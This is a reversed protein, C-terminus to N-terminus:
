KQMSPRRKETDKCEQEIDVVLTELTALDADLEHPQPIQVTESQPNDHSNTNAKTMGVHFREALADTLHIYRLKLTEIRDAGRTLIDKFICEEVAREYTDRLRGYFGKTEYEYKTPSTAHLAKIAPAEAKLLSIRKKVPLGKWIVGAPDVKGADAGKLAFLADTKPTQGLRETERCLDNFFILDHTFVVVQRQAAETALRIAVKGCRERDLSSVPDDVVIPGKGETMTIETLFASLALARQEGESLIDSVKKTHGTGSQTAFSADTQSSKRAISIKLHDIELLAREREFQEIVATTLHTDVFRNAASTIQTTAVDKLASDYKQLEKLVDRRAKVQDINTTLLQRDKLEAQELKLATRAEQENADARAKADADLTAALASLDASLDALVPLGDSPKQYSLLAAAHQRRAVVATKFESLRSALETNRAALQKIRSDWDEAALVSLGPLTDRAETVATEAKDAQDALVGSVYQEFRALRDAANATLPQQCLVCSPDGGEIAIVPFVQGVYAESVSYDRAAKWLARWTDSGVGLLPEAKFLDGASLDAAARKSRADSALAGLSKLRADGLPQALKSCENACKSVWEALAILDATSGVDATLQGNLEALRDVDTSNFHAAADIQEDTASATMGAYFTQATTARGEEFTVVALGLQTAVQGREADLTAKLTLCLANLKHPMALGFPLFQIQHGQDVYLAAAQTDFVAIQLLEPAPNAGPQWDITTDAGAKTLVIKASQSGSPAGYVNQLVKLKDPNDTRTRCATRLIRVFGSKGSGNRGYIVTMGSESFSLAADTMLRNVNRVEKVEKLTFADGAIAGSFHAKTLPEVAPPTVSVPLGVKQKVMALLEDTDSQSLSGGCALRRLADRQWPQLKTNSWIIIEDIPQSTTM